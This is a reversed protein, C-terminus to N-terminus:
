PHEPSEDKCPRGSSPASPDECPRPSSPTREDSSSPTITYQQVAKSGKELLFLRQERTLEFDTMEIGPIEIKITREWFGSAHYPKMLFVRSATFCLTLFQRMSEPVEPVPHEHDVDNCYFGLSENWDKPPVQTFPYPCFYAGDVFMERNHEVSPFIMPLAASAMLAKIVPMTPQTEHNWDDITGQSLNSVIIHLEKQTRDHLEQLTITPSLNKQLLLSQAFRTFQAGDDLSWKQLICDLHPQFLREFPFYLLLHTLDQLEFDLALLLSLFAGASVGWYGKLSSWWKEGWQHELEALTGVYSFTRVGGGTLVLYNTPQKLKRPM